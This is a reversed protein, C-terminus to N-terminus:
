EGAKQTKQLIEYVPFKVQYQEGEVIIQAANRNNANIVFPAKLNVTMKTLDSPVTITVIVLMDDAGMNGLPKLLEDEVEPNYDTCVSLPNVVPMAFAPEQVSQLWRIGGNDGKEEDHILAFDKLDAFGIIGNPFHILKDDSINIKGFIRTNIEM